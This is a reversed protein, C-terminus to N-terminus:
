VFNSLKMELFIMHQFNIHKIDLSYNADYENVYESDGYITLSSFYRGYLKTICIDRIYFKTLEIQM